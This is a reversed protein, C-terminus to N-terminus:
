IFIFIFIFRVGRYLFYCLIKINDIIEDVKYFILFDNVMNKERLCLIFNYM